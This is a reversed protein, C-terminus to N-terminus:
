ERRSFCYVIGSQGAGWESRAAAAAAAAAHHPARRPVHARLRSARVVSHPHRDRRAAGQAHGGQGAGPPAASVEPPADCRLAAVPVHPPPDPRVGRAEYFLNGRHVSSRFRVCAAMDLAKCVDAEVHPTATATLALLPAAPFQQKLVHLKAYDPRFDHRRPPSAPAVRSPRRALRGSCPAPRPPASRVGM